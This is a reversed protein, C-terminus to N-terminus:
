KAMVPLNGLNGNASTRQGVVGIQGSPTTDFEVTGRKNATFSYQSTLKFSTHGRPPLNITETGLKNGRDDRVIVPVDTVQGSVNALDLTTSNGSTNDFAVIYATANTTQFPASMQRGNFQYTAFGGVSGNTSLQASGTETSTGATAVILTNGPTITQSLTSTNTKAGTDEYTLPLSLSNGNNDFFNLQVHASSTGTNSLTFTTQWGGGSVLRAMSGKPAGVDGLASASGSIVTSPDTEIFHVERGGAVIAFNLHDTGNQSNSLTATGTCDSNVSYNGQVNGSFIVGTQSATGTLSLNGAGDAVAQGSEAFGWGAGSNDYTWGSVAFGYAGNLSETTCNSQQQKANGSAAVMADSEIFLVEKGNNVAVITFHSPSGSGTTTVTGTCDANITYTGNFAQSHIQGGSSFTDSGTLNGKGDATVTGSEAVPYFGGNSMVLGTITYGYPGTFSANTCTQSDGPVPQPTSPDSSTTALRLQILINNAECQDVTYHAADNLHMIWTTTSTQQINNGGMGLTNCVDTFAVISGQDTGSSFAWYTQSNWSTSIGLQVTQGASVTGVSVEKDPCAAPLGTLYPVFNAQSTGIGFESTAGASGGVCQIYLTGTSPSVFNGARLSGCGVVLIMAFWASCKQM